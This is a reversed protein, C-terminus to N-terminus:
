GNMKEAMEKLVNLDERTMGTQTLALLMVKMAGGFTVNKVRRLENLQYEERSLLAKYVNAHGVRQSITLYKKDLLGLTARNMAQRTMVIDFKQEMREIIDQIVTEGDADWVCQMIMQQKETLIAQEEKM